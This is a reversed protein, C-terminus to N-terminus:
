LLLNQHVRENEALVATSLCRCVMKKAERLSYVSPNTVWPFACIVKAAGLVPRSDGLDEKMKRSIGLCLCLVYM